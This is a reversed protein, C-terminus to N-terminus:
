GRERSWTEYCPECLLHIKGDPAEAERTNRARVGRECRACTALTIQRGDVDAWRSIRTASVSRVLDALERIRRGNM